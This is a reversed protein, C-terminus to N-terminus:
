ILRHFGGFASAPDPTEQNQNGDALAQRRALVLGLADDLVATKISGGYRTQMGASRNCEILWPRLKNDLMIDVALLEFCQEAHALLNETSLRLPEAVAHLTDRLIDEITNWVSAVDGEQAIHERWVDGPLCHEQSNYGPQQMQLITTAIHIGPDNWSQPLNNYPKVALDALGNRYLYVTLPSSSTILM